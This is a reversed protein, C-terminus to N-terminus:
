QQSLIDTVTLTNRDAVPKPLLLFYRGVNKMHGAFNLAADGSGWFVDGRVPGKIANGVDQALMLRRLPEGAKAIASDAPWATDLWIPIGLPLFEPDVALSRGATLAVGLAGMPGDGKMENFFIYRPNKEMWAMAEAPHTKLWDRITQMSVGSSQLVGGDVMAKGIAVFKQGNNGAYGVRIVKGDPLRVRGSGQVQLLFVDVADRLWLFELGQGALAGADIEARTFAVPSSPAHYLPAQFEESPMLSGELDAEYYGTFLGQRGSRDLAAFPRFYDAMFKAMAVNDGNPVLAAMTCAERWDAPTGALGNPGISKDGPLKEIAACSRLLAPLAEVMRDQDWGPLATFNTPILSLGPPAEPPRGCGALLALLGCAAVVSWM